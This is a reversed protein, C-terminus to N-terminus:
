IMVYKDAPLESIRFLPIFDTSRYVAEFMFTSCNRPGEDSLALPVIIIMMAFVFRNM